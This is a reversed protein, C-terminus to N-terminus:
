CPLISKNIYHHTKLRYKQLKITIEVNEVNKLISFFLISQFGVREENKIEFNLWKKDTDLYRYM